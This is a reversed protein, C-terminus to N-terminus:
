FKKKKVISNARALTGFMFQLSYLENLRSFSRHRHRCEARAHVQTSCGNNYKYLWLQTSKTSIINDQCHDERSTVAISYSTFTSFVLPPTLAFIPVFCILQSAAVTIYM